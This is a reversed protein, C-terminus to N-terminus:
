RAAKAAKAARAKALSDNQRLRIQDLEHVARVRAVEADLARQRLRAVERKWEHGLYFAAKRSWHAALVAAVFTGGANLALLAIAFPTM